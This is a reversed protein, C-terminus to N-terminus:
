CTTSSRDLLNVPALLAGGCAPVRFQKVAPSRGAVRTRRAVPPQTEGAFMFRLRMLGEFSVMPRDRRGEVAGGRGAGRSQNWREGDGNRAGGAEWAQGFGPGGGASDASGARM